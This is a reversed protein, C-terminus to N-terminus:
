KNEIQNFWLRHHHEAYEAPVRGSFMSWFAPREDRSIAAMYVHLLLMATTLGAALFHVTISWQVWVVQAPELLHKSVAMIVGSVVLGLGGLVMVIAAAKQGANYFPQDPIAGGWGLPRVLRAMMSYGLTMQLNKKITWELDRGPKIAFIRLLFPLTLSKLWVVAAVLWVASWIGAATLHTWLLGTGGGFLSRTARPWWGGLPQLQPNDIM